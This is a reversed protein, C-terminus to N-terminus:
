ETVEKMTVDVADLAIEGQYLKGDTGRVYFSCVLGAKGKAGNLVSPTPPDARQVSLQTRGGYPGLVLPKNEQTKVAVSYYGDTLRVGMVHVWVAPVQTRKDGNVNWAVLSDGRFRCKLMDGKAVDRPYLIHESM